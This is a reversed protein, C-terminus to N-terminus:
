WPDGVGYELTHENGLRGVIAYKKNIVDFLVSVGDLNCPRYDRIIKGDNEVWVRRLAAYFRNKPMNYMGLIFFADKTESGM